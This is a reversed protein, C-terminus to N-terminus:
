AYLQLRQFKLYLPTASLHNFISLIFERKKNLSFLLFSLLFAATLSFAGSASTIFDSLSFSFGAIAKEANQVAANCLQAVGHSVVPTTKESHRFTEAAHGDSALDMVQAKLACSNGIALWFAFVIFILKRM